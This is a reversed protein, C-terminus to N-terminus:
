NASAKEASDIVIFEASVRHATLKLGLQDKLAGILTVPPTGSTDSNADPVQDARESWSIQFDYLGTLGTKDVVPKTM